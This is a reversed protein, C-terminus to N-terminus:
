FLSSSGSIKIEQDLFETINVRSDPYLTLWFDSHVHRPRHAYESPGQVNIRFCQEYQLSLHKLVLIHLFLWTTALKWVLLICNERKHHLRVTDKSWQTYCFRYRGVADLVCTKLTVISIWVVLLLYMSSYDPVQIADGIFYCYEASWTNILNFLKRRDDPPRQHSM